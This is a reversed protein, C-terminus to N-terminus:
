RAERSVAEISTTIWCNRCSGNEKGCENDDWYGGGPPAIHRICNDESGSLYELASALWVVMASEREAYEIITDASDAAYRDGDRAAVYRERLVGSM